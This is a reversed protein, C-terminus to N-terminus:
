TKAQLDEAWSRADQLRRYTSLYTRGAIDPDCMLRSVTYKSVRTKRGVIGQRGDKGRLWRQAPGYRDPRPQKVEIIALGELLSQPAEGHLGCTLGRDITVREKRDFDVLTLRQFGGHLRPELDMNKVHQALFTHEQADLQVGEGTRRMRDKLTRGGPFRRKVELFSMGNSGYTRTRVKMRRSRGRLHDLLFDDGPPEYYVNDYRADWQGEVELLHAHGKMADVLGPLWSEPVVYKADFRRMLQVSDMRELGARRMADCALQLNEILTNMGEPM